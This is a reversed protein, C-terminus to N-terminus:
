QQYEISIDMISSQTPLFSSNQNPSLIVKDSSANFTSGIKLPISNLYYCTGSACQLHYLKLTLTVDKGVPSYKKFVNGHIDTTIMEAPEIVIEQTEVMVKGESDHVTFNRLSEAHWPELNRYKVKIVANAIQKIGIRDEPREYVSTITGNFSTKGLVTRFPQGVLLPQGNFTFTQTSNDKIASLKITLNISQRDSNVYVKQVDVVEGVITSASSYIRDGIKISSTKWYSPPTPETQWDQTESTLDIYVFEIHRSFRFAFYSSFVLIIFIIVIDIRSLSPIKSLIRKLMQPM